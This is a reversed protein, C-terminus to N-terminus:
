IRSIIFQDVALIDKTFFCLYDKVYLCGCISFGGEEQYGSCVVLPIYDKQLGIDEM